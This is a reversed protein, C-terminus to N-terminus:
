ARQYLSGYGDDGDGDDGLGASDSYSSGRAILPRTREGDELEPAPPLRVRGQGVHPSHTIPRAEYRVEGAAASGAPVVDPLAVKTHVEKEHYYTIIGLILLGVAYYTYVNLKNVTKPGAVFRWLLLVDVVPLRMASAITFLVSSGRKFIVLSLVNYCINFFLFVFLIKAFDGCKAPNPDDPSIDGEPPDHGFFCNNAKSMYSGLDSLHIVPAPAPWPIAVTPLTMLGFILQYVAVWNNMLWEDMDAADKLGAEKVVNSLAAPIASLILVMIWIGQKQEKVDGNANEGLFLQPMLQVMIGYIVILAGVYHTFKYKTKLFVVSALMTFPLVANSLTNVIPGSVYPVPWSSTLNFLTDMAGGIMFVAHFKWQRMEPTIVKSVYLRYLVVPTSIALYAIPLIITALYTVYPYIATMRYYLTQDVSRSLVMALLILLLVVREGRFFSSWRGVRFKLEEPYSKHRMDPTAPMAAYERSEAM